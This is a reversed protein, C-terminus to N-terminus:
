FKRRRRNRVATKMSPKPSLDREWSPCIHTSPLSGSSWDPAGRWGVDTIAGELRNNNKKRFRKSQGADRELIGHIGAAERRGRQKREELRRKRRM